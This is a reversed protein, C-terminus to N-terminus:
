RITAVSTTNMLRDRSAVDKKAEDATPQGAGQGLIKGYYTDFRTGSFRISALFMRFGNMQDTIRNTLIQM